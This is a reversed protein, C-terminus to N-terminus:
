KRETRALLSRCYANQPELQLGEKACDKALRILNADPNVSPSYELLYLWGLRSLDTSDLRHAEQHGELAMRVRGILMDRREPPVEEKNTSIYDALAAAVESCQKPKSSDIELARISKYVHQQMDGQRREFAAWSLWREADLPAAEAARRFSARVRQPDANGSDLAHAVAIWLDPHAEACQEAMSLIEDWAEPETRFLDLAEDFLNQFFAGLPSRGLRVQSWRHFSRAKAEIIPQDDDGILIRRAHLSAIQVLGVTDSGSSDTERIGLSYRILEDLADQFNKGALLLAARLPIALVPRDIAGLLLYLFKGDDSLCEYSRDFLAALVDERASIAELFNRAAGGAAFNAIALKMAYPSAGTAKIIQRRVEPTLKPECYHRRAEQTLLAQAEAEEMGEVDVPFDGQFTQHRSTILVKSPLVVNNDLFQHVVDPSDFTEFNDVILLYSVAGQRSGDVSVRFFDLARDGRSDDGGLLTAFTTVLGDLDTVDRRRPAPGGELLDVDRASFWIIADFQGSEAALEHVTHLALSTKGSGGPGRLSIVRHVPDSLLKRLKAELKKRLVYGEPEHPLNYGCHSGFTLEPEPATESPPLQDLRGAYGPRHLHETRGPRYDIFQCLAAADRWVGNAFLTEFTDPNVEAIPELPMVESGLVAVTAGRELAITTELRARELPQPGVLFLVELWKDEPTKPATVLAWRCTGPILAALIRAATAMPEAAAKYFSWTKAGHGRTRNRIFVIDGMIDILNHRRRQTGAYDDEGLTAVVQELSEVLRGIEGSPDGEGPTTKKTLDRAFARAQGMQSRHLKQALSALTSVWTGISEARVFSLAFGQATDPAHPRLLTLGSCAVFKISAEVLFLSAEFREQPSQAPVLRLREDVLALPTPLESKTDM